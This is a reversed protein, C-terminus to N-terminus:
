EALAADLAERMEVMLEPSYGFWLGRIKGDRGLILTTPYPIGAEGAVKAIAERTEGSPDAFAPFDTQQEQLFAATDEALNSDDGDHSCSVSVFRFDPRARYHEALEVVHPFEIVCYGCWTGWINILAVKGSLDDLALPQDTGVLPALALNALPKGVAPHPPVPTSNRQWGSAALAVALGALLAALLWLRFSGSAPAPTEFERQESLM